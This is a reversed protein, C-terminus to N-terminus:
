FDEPDTLSEFDPTTHKRIERLAVNAKAVIRQYRAPSVGFDDCCNLAMISVVHPVINTPITTGWINMHETDLQEYMENYAEQIRAEKDAPLAQGIRLIGLAYATRKIIEAVTM